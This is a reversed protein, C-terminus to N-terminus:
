NQIEYKSNDIYRKLSKLSSRLYIVSKRKINILSDFSYEQGCEKFSINGHSLNNRNDKITKLEGGGAARYHINLKIEHKSYLERIKQADINGSIPLHEKKVLLASEEILDDVVKTLITKYTVQNATSPEAGKFQQNIWVKRFNLNLDSLQLNSNCIHDYLHAFSERVSAEILNYLLLFCTSKMVKKIDTDIEFQTKRNNRIKYLEINEGLLLELVKFYKEVEHVREEFKNLIVDM